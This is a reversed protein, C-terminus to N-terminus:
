IISKYSKILFMKHEKIFSNVSTNIRLSPPLKNWIKPGQVNLLKLGYHSTGATPIFLTRTVVSNEIDIYKSRINHAHMQNTLKYWSHFNEPTIGNLCNYIFKSIMLKFIDHIKHIEIKYFLPDSPQFYKVYM